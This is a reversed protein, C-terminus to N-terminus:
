VKIPADDTQAYGRASRAILISGFLMAALGGLFTLGIPPLPISLSTRGLRFRTYCHLKDGPQRVRRAPWPIARGAWDTWYSCEEIGYGSQGSGVVWIPSTSVVAVRYGTLPTSATTWFSYVENSQALCMSRSLLAVAVVIGTWHAARVPHRTPEIVQMNWLKRMNRNDALARSGTKRARTRSRRLRAPNLVPTAEPAAV